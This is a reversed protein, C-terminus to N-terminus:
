QTAVLDAVARAFGAEDFSPTRQSIQLSYNMVDDGRGESIAFVLQTLSSQLRPPIFAVM